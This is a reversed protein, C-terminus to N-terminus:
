LRNSFFITFRKTWHWTNAWDGGSRRELSLIDLWCNAGSKHLFTEVGASNTLLLLEFVTELCHSIHTYVCISWVISINIPCFFNFNFKSLLAHRTGLFGKWTGNQARTGYNRWGQKLTLQLVWLGKTWTMKRDSELRLILTNKAFNQRTAISTLHQM